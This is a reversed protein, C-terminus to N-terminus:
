HEDSKNNVNNDKPSSIGFILKHKYYQGWTLAPYAPFLLFTSILLLELIQTMFAGSGLIFAGNTFYNFVLVPFFIFISGGLIFMILTVPFAIYLILGEYWYNILNNIKQKFSGEYDKWEEFVLILSLQILFSIIIAIIIFSIIVALSIAIEQDFFSIFLSSILQIPGANSGLDKLDIPFVFGLLFIAIFYTTFLSFVGLIIGELKPFPMTKFQTWWPDEGKPDYQSGFTFILVQYVALIVSAAIWQDIGIDQQFPLNLLPLWNLIYTLYGIARPDIFIISRFLELGIVIIGNTILILLLLTFTSTGGLSFIEWIKLQNIKPSDPSLDKLKEETDNLVTSENM